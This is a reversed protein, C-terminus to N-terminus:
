ASGGGLSGGIMERYCLATNIGSAPVIWRYRLAARDTGFTMGRQSKRLM